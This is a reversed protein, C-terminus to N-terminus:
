GEMTLASARKNNLSFPDERTECAARHMDLAEIYLNAINAVSAAMKVVGCAATYNEIMWNHAKHAATDSSEPGTVGILNMSMPGDCMGSAIDELACLMFQVDALELSISMEMNPNM